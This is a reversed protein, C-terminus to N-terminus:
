LLKICKEIYISVNKIFEEKQEAYKNKINEIIDLDSKKCSNEYKLQYPILLFYSDDGLISKMDCIVENFIDDADRYSYGKGMLKLNRHIQGQLLLSRWLQQEDKIDKENELYIISDKIYNLAAEYDNQMYYYLACVYWTHGKIKSFGHPLNEKNKIIDILQYVINNNLVLELEAQVNLANCYLENHTDMIGFRIKNACSIYKYSLEFEQIDKLLLGINFLTTAWSIKYAKQEDPNINDLDIYMEKITASQLYYKGSEFPSFSKLLTAFFDLSLAYLRKDECYKEKMELDLKSYNMAEPYRGLNSLTISINNYCKSLFVKEEKDCGINNKTLDIAKNLYFVSEEYLKYYRAFVGISNLLRTRLKQDIKEGVSEEIKKGVNYYYRKNELSMGSRYQLNQLVEDAFNNLEDKSLYNLNEIHDTAINNFIKRVNWNQNVLSEVDKEKLIFYSFINNFTQKLKDINDVINCDVYTNFANILISYLTDDSQFNTYLSELKEKYKLINTNYEDLLEPFQAATKYFAHKLVNATKELENKKYVSNIKKFVICDIYEFFNHQEALYCLLKEVADYDGEPYYIPEIGISSLYRNRKINKEEDNFYPLIAYHSVREHLEICEKLIELPRDEEMSCGVFLLKKGPFIKQLFQPIPKHQRDNESVGYFEDYQSSTIIFSTTEELSGHLKLLCRDNIQIAEDVQGKLCPLLPKLPEIAVNQKSAMELIYDYNTTIILDSFNSVLIFASPSLNIKANEFIERILKMALHTNGIVKVIEDAYKLNDNISQFEKIEQKTFYNEALQDLLERWTYLGCGKSIGAGVFPIIEKRYQKIFNLRNKNNKYNLLESLLM